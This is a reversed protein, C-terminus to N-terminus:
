IMRCAPLLQARLKHTTPVTAWNVEHSRAGDIRARGDSHPDSLGPAGADLLVPVWMSVSGKEATTARPIGCARIPTNITIM